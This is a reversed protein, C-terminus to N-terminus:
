DPGPIGLVAAGAIDPRTRDPNPQDGSLLLGIGNFQRFEPHHAKVQFEAPTMAQHNSGVWYREKAFPYAPLSLRTYSDQSFLNEYDLRYGQVFLEGVAALGELYEHEKIDQKRCHLICQNGYRKLSSQERREGDKCYGTFIQSATGRELWSRLINILEGNNRPICALRYEFHKRGVSLTFCLNGLNIAPASEVHNIIRRAQQRLQEPGRASLALLYGPREAHRREIEDAEEIVLHANTGSLGFANIAACRKQGPSVEWNTLRTNVYFPSEELNIGPNCTEYHLSPPIQRHKLSLLIKILGVIGAAAATHGLNTKISGIACYRTKATDKRFAQTLARCEIPDGLKTGTGHAEVLQINEPHIKFTDYVQRQLREQSVASPATIGNTTGDQNIGSGRIVGYIHDGDAMAESLRKLVVVGAGEGPVFGDARADFTYCKGTPSLMEARGGLLYFGPTSQAFVGGALAIDTERGWLGQCALHVAVLSSSCATNVTIAPGQLNLYYSIRASLISGANGWMAQAPTQDGLLTQYDTGNYGVYVGCRSADMSESAYGADELAKWAEELFLRQQPDMAAAETASINFFMPDFHDIDNLLGGYRCFASGAPTMEPLPWRAVPQILDDGNSLHRWLENVDESQAFRGSMGIIAIPQHSGPYEAVQLPTAKTEPPPPDAQGDSGFDTEPAVPQPPTLRATVAARWESLIYDALRNISSFDYLHTTELNIGLVANIQHILQVGSISDVGYDAFSDVYSIQEVPVRLNINLQEAIVRRLSGALMDEAPPASDPRERPTEGKITKRTVPAPHPPEGPQPQRILGDSRAVIIQQGLDKAIAAPWYVRDFGEDKLLTKWTDISVAPCGELRLHPDEALWWGETLGFTLHIFLNNVTIENILLAGNRKLAAKANRLTARMNKTAHLVNAAIAIDYSGLPISQESLPREVNFLQFQLYPNGPGYAREAHLLFAKSIDSYTYVEIHDRYPQLTALVIETTGGAGAGIELIRAPTRHGQALRAEIITVVTQAVVSNFYDAKANHKYIKEVRTMLSNPFLIDTVRIKGTLIEPLAKLTAGVLEAQNTLNARLFDGNKCQDWRRWLTELSDDKRDLRLHGGARLVRATEDLWSKYLPLIRGTIQWSEATLTFGLLQLQGWLLRRQLDEFVAYALMEDQTFQPPTLAAVREMNDGDSACGRSGTNSSESNSATSEVSAEVPHSSKVVALQRIPAGLFQEVAALGEAPEISGVGIAAMRNQYARDSVIGVSGWYGWNMIKVPCKWAQNLRQAFADSFTCGAAYNSQGPARIFSQLSSFFLVFDLSEGSFIQALRVSTEVKARLGTLFRGEDMNTFSKDELVIASHVVGNISGYEARIQEYAQALSSSIAADAQIYRPRPGIQALRDLKATISGDLPRRGLWVIRARYNRVLHESLVEGLGGGGGIVVYVGNQRFTTQSPRHPIEVPLLQQRYWQGDRWAYTDGRQDAALSLCDALLRRTDAKGVGMGDNGCEVPLDALRILWNPYEKALAGILGHVSAHAPYVIEDHVCQTQWTIVTLRLRKRGYGLALLTKILRFGFHAGKSQQSIHEESEVAATCDQPLVWILTDIDGASQLSTTLTEVTEDLKLPLVRTHSFRGVLAERIATMDAGILAASGHIDAPTEDVIAAPLSEWHPLLTRVIPEFGPKSNHRASPGNVYQQPQYDAPRSVSVDPKGDADVWCRQKLFPYTPLSIRRPRHGEQYLRDWDFALGKVWSEVLKGYRGKAIWSQLVVELDEDAAFLSSQNQDKKIRGRYVDDASTRGEIFNTLKAVLSELSPALIGLREDMAGRGVQLTYAIDELDDNTLSHKQVAGLLNSAQIKLQTETKASLVIIAPRRFGTARRVSTKPAIYEEIVVHANTGSYGFSSVAARRPSAGEGKWPKLETNVYFASERFEFHENPERFHLSPALQGHRMCLLVKHVGAVGAAASTHGLNSKVSGLACFEKDATAEGFVESLAALEIPDGLKTGTGHAEVYSVSRPDIAFRTYITKLLAAQSKLSPATLGNTKGDQNIGSGIIVGQIGDGDREADRLRKLVLAGVGEGPVFGDASNDFTKCRGEPSLMGAGCMGVYSEPILYLTVGGALALDIEGCQLAQIALHAAVLSSSCATDVPVAPGKLNLHYAIRAAGIAYSNGTASGRGSQAVIQAYENSMIGLYVGCNIGDLRAPGYGADEFARYGEELFLRHQPDMLEAEAPSINFFLPDFCDIEELAGLWKCYIKGPSPTTPDFYSNVDWRSAPVEKVADFGEVLRNWYENLDRAGPYRGSSGIIAIRSDIATVSQHTEQSPALGTTQPTSRYPAVESKPGPDVAAAEHLSGEIELTPKSSTRASNGIGPMLTSLHSALQNVTPHDYLATAALNIQFTTNIWRVLEVGIVSDLGLDIFLQDPDIEAVDAYLAGALGEILRTAIIRASDPSDAPKVGHNNHIGVEYRTDAAPNAVSTAPASIEDSPVGKVTPGAAILKTLYRAFATLTPYDYLVAASLSLRFQSNVWRVWEVSVVSDLGLDIFPRDPDIEAADAYLAQALGQRLQRALSESSSAILRVPSNWSEVKPSGEPNLSVATISDARGNSDPQSADSSLDDLKIRHITAARHPWTHAIEDALSPLKLPALPAVSAETKHDGTHSNLERPLVTRDSQGPGPVSVWYRQRAFPYVPLSIRRPRRGASYLQNWDFALGKVWLDILKSFKGREIWKGIAEQLEQDATFLSLTTREKKVSGRSWVGHDSPDACYQELGEVLSEWDTVTTALREEMAERGVQLTYALDMLELERRRGGGIAELLKEAQEKLQGETKASLVIIAPLSEEIKRREEEPREEVYEEIIVHANAGGAGFASIGAIRPYERERGEIKVKPRKWEEVRQQVRFPTQGFDINPNLRQSHLSPALEGHRMQLLVKTVGAIGAASECHGINSKVSGIACTQILKEGSLQNFARTLGAIEIPDGLSTGTGHAEIYSITRPDVKAKELAAMILECQANPNPVTYGNTKGGHNISSGRIVGYIHDGDAIAKSLPKLLVAGVGEGPVYGDGGEGFSECRGRSSAFQTQSLVLYKNPHVSVNVGGAIALECDGQMLSQCALHIATLSSSCMTNVALSPGHFNCFYSVRNAISSPNGGLTYPQGLAQAQAGYLQYEEYMVGVFVGVNSEMRGAAEPSHSTKLSERTYGADELTHYVCQLFLREQPDMIQAERPSINFFLPDFLDVGEIFGGWKSYSKGPQGKQPDFYLRHDWREPPIETICDKGARLNEWYEDLNNAQPYRGSLGIVAIATDQAAPEKLRSVQRSPRRQARSTQEAVVSAPPVTTASSAGLRAELEAAHSRVFYDTLARITQCEFFLTKPLPGFTKELHDTLEIVMVSDIGYQELAADVDIRDVPLKITQALQQKFYRHARDHMASDGPSETEM